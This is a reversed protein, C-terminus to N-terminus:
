GVVANKILNVRRLGGQPSMEVALVDIRWDGPWDHEQLYTQALEILRTQKAQTISEEPTGLERGRRTRVEVFALCDGDEAVIDMEGLPCRWNQERILYGQGRLYRAALEEGLQGLERRTRRM